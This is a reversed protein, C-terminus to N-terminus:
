FVVREGKVEGKGELALMKYPSFEGGRKGAGGEM